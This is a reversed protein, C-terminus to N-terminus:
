GCPHCAVMSLIFSSTSLVDLMSYVGVGTNYFSKAGLWSWNLLGPSDMALSKEMFSVEYASYLPTAHVLNVFTM